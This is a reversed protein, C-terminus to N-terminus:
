EAGLCQRGRAGGLEVGVGVAEEIPVAGNADAAALVVAQYTRRAVLTAVAVLLQRAQRAVRQVPARGVVLEVGFLEAIAGARLAM